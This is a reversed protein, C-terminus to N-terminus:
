TKNEVIDTTETELKYEVDDLQYYTHELGGQKNCRFCGKGKCAICKIIAKHYPRVQM